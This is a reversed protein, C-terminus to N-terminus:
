SCNTIRVMMKRIFNWPLETQEASGYLFLEPVYQCATELKQYDGGLVNKQSNYFIWNLKLNGTLGVWIQCLEKSYKILNTNEIYLLNIKPIFKIGLYNLRTPVWGLPNVFSCNVM